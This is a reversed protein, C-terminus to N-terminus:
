ANFKVGWCKTIVRGAPVILYSMSKRSIDVKSSCQCADEKIVELDQDITEPNDFKYSKIGYAQAMLQFNLTDFVSKQHVGEYFSRAM